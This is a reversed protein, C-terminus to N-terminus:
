EAGELGGDRFWESEFFAPLLQPHLMFPDVNGLAPDFDAPGGSLVQQFHIKPQLLLPEVLEEIVQVLDAVRLM